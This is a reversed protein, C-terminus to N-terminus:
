NQGNSLVEVVEKFEDEPLKALAERAHYNLSKAAMCLTLADTHYYVSAKGADDCLVAVFDSSHATEGDLHLTCYPESNMVDEVAQDRYSIDATYGVDQRRHNEKNKMIYMEYLEDATFGACLLLNVFFHLSDVLEMRVKQWAQLVEGESMNDYNKWSKYYPMEYLAEAVEDELYGRNDRMYEAREQPTMNSYNFGLRAQFEAQKKMIERLKDM